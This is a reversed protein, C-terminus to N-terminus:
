PRISIGMGVVHRAELNVPLLIVPPFPAPLGTPLEATGIMGAV